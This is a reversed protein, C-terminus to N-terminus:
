LLNCLETIVYVDNHYKKYTTEVVLRSRYLFYLLVIFSKPEYLRQTANFVILQKRYVIRTIYLQILLLNLNLIIQSQAM